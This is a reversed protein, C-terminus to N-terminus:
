RSLLETKKKIHSAIRRVYREEFVYSRIKPNKGSQTDQFFTFKCGLFQNNQVIEINVTLIDDGLMLSCCPIVQGPKLDQTRQTAKPYFRIGEVSIDLVRGTILILQDPHTFLFSIRDSEEVPYRSSKRSDPLDPFYRRLIDELRFIVRNNYINDTIIANSQLYIAKAAEEFAFNKHTILIFVTEKKTKRERLVKLLPKWHRPYDREYYFIVDIDDRNIENIAQVPDKKHEIEFGLPKFHYEFIEKLYLDYSIFVIKM